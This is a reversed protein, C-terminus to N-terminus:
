PGKRKRAARPKRPSSSKPRNQMAIQAAQNLQYEIRDILAPSQLRPRRLSSGGARPFHVDIALRVAYTSLAHLDGTLLVWFKAHDVKNFKAIAASRASPSAIPNHEILPNFVAATHAAINRYAGLKDTQKLLWLVREQLAPRDSLRVKAVQRVMERQATDNQITHWLGHAFERGSNKPSTIYWFLMFVSSHLANWAWLALGTRLAYRRIMPAYMRPLRRSPLM